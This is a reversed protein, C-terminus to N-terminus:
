VGADIERVALYCEQLIEHVLVRQQVPDVRRNGPVQGLSAAFPQCAAHDVVDDPVNTEQRCTVM